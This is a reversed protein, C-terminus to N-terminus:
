RADILITAPAGIPFHSAPGDLVVKVPVIRPAGEPMPLGLIPHDGGPVVTGRVVQDLDASHVQLTTGPAFKGLESEPALITVCAVDPNVIELLPMGPAAIFGEEIMRIAIVGDAPARLLVTKKQGNIEHMKNDLKRCAEDYSALLHFQVLTQTIGGASLHFASAPESWARRAEDRKAELATLNFRMHALMHHAQEDELELIVQGAKVAYGERVHLKAVKALMPSVLTVRDIEIVGGANGAAEPLDAGGRQWTILCAALASLSALSLAAILLLKKM